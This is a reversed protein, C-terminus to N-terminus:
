RKARVVLDVEGKYRRQLDEELSFDRELQNILAYGMLETIDEVGVVMDPRDYAEGTEVSQQMLALANRMGMLAAGMLMRPLTVRRVGLEGLRKVTITPTTPRSRIGFGMNVSVYHPHLADVLRMIQDETDVADAYAMDAGADLYMKCRAIAADFGEVALADTRANIIFDPDKKARAAAELKKCMERASIVDKGRMHGCRKPSVQDELNIGVVGAAEFQQVTHYVTVANGYGTDADAWLPLSIADALRRSADVNATLTLLGVDPQAYLSNSLGAGTTSAAKFGMKEVMRASYGDYVGPSVVIGESLLQRMRRTKTMPQEPM